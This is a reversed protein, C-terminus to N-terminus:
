SLVSTRSCFLKRCAFDINGSQLTAIVTKALTQKSGSHFHPLVPIVQILPTAHKCHNLIGKEGLEECYAYEQSIRHIWPVFLWKVCDTEDPYHFLWLFENPCISQNPTTQLCSLNITDSTFIIWPIQSLCSSFHRQNLPYSISCRPKRRLLRCKCLSDVAISVASSGM